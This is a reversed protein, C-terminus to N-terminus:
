ELSFSDQQQLSGFPITRKLVLSAQQVASVVSLKLCHQIYQKYLQVFCCSPNDLNAHHTVVKPEQKRKAIGGSNNKSINETYILHATSATPPEVLRIQSYQLDRHEQGSRLAFYLGCMFVMTDLLIQPSDAGLIYVM